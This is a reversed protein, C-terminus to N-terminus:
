LDAIIGTIPFRSELSEEDTVIVSIPKQLDGYDWVM